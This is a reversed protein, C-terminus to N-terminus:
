VILGRYSDGKKKVGPVDGGGSAIVRVGKKRRGAGSVRQFFDHCGSPMSHLIVPGGGEKGLAVLCVGAGGGGKM